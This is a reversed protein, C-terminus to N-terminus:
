VKEGLVKRFHDAVQARLQKTEQMKSRLEDIATRTEALRATMERHQAQLRECQQEWDAIQADFFEIMKKPNTAAPLAAAGGKKPKHGKLYRWGADATTQPMLTRCGCACERNSMTFKQRQVPLTETSM